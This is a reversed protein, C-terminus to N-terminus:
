HSVGVAVREQTLPIGGPATREVVVIPACVFLGDVLDAVMAIAEEDVQLTHREPLELYAWGTGTAQWWVDSVSKALPRSATSLRLERSGSEAAPGFTMGPYFAERVPPAARWDLRRSVQLIRQPVGPTIRWSRTSPM